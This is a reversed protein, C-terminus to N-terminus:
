ATKPLRPLGQAAEIKLKLLQTRNVLPKLGLRQATALAETLLTLAKARDGDHNRRLLMRAYDHQTHATWIPAKIQTNITLAHEFHRAAADHHSMTAALLGLPRSACGQCLLTVSSVCRDAYPMLLEYLPRARAADGLVAVVESLTAINSLWFYDRPIDSFDNRALVDLTHRAQATRGLKAQIDALQCRWGALEPYQAALEAVTPALEDLRGQQRRISLMQMSFMHAALEDRGEYRQALAHHALM